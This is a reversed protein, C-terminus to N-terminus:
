SGIVSLMKNTTKDKDRYMEYFRVPTTKLATHIRKHNYYYIQKAIAEYLEGECAFRSLDGLELKFNQYLSEQYGNQWPSAKRSFSVHIENAELLAITAEATYESGQDSHFFSPPEHKSLADCVALHVLEKTHRIGVSWGLIRRTHLDIVTALYYWRGLLWLYTFDSAWIHGPRNPQLEKILNTLQKTSAEEPKREPVFAKTRKLYPQLGFLKMARRVRNKGLGLHLAIREHGYAPHEQLVAEIQEKLAKDRQPLTPQYYSSARKIGLAKTVKARIRALLNGEESNSL